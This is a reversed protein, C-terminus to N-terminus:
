NQTTHSQQTCCLRRHVTTKVISNLLISVFYLSLYLVFPTTLGSEENSIDEFKGLEERDAAANNMAEATTWRGKSVKVSDTASNAM